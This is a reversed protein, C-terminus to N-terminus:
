FVFDAPKKLSPLVPAAADFVPRGGIDGGKARTYLMVRAARGAGQIGVLRGGEALQALLTRPEVEFAGNMVIVDFPSAEPWGQELPGTVVTVGGVGAQALSSRAIAALGPFCDLATVTAGIRAMVAASYGSGSAVDLVRTGPTVRAVQIM